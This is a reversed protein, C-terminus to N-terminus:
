RRVHDGGDGRRPRRCIEGRDPADHDQTTRLLPGIGNTMFAMEKFHRVLTGGVALMKDGGFFRFNASNDHKALEKMLNSAHLDGSAEGAILYYKM